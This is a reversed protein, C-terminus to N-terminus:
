SAIHVKRRHMHTSPTTTGVAVEPLAGASGLEFYGNLAVFQTYNIECSNQYDHLYRRHKDMGLIKKKKM